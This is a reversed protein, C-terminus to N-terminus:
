GIKRIYRDNGHDGWSLAVAIPDFAALELAGSVGEGWCDREGVTGGQESGRASVARQQDAGHLDMHLALYENDDLGGARLDGLAKESYAEQRVHLQLPSLDRSGHDAASPTRLPVHSGM